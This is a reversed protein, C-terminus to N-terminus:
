DLDREYFLMIPGDPEGERNAFGCSAYLARAAADTEGTCLAMYAAGEERATAMATEMLARGIGQGRQSPAVYLEELYADLTSNWISPRFRLVALGVPPEGSLLATMEGNALLQQARDTLPGVGPTPDSFETNFDHLLRAIKPADDAGAQRVSLQNSPM